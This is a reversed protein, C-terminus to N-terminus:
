RRIDLPCLFPKQAQGNFLPLERMPRICGVGIEPRVAFLFTQKAWDDYQPSEASFDGIHVDGLSHVFRTGGLSIAVHGVDQKKGFFLLDGVEYSYDKNVPLRTPMAAMEDADRPGVLGNILWAVKILGSCDMAYPSTGAWRYSRGLLRLASRAINARLDKQNGNQFLHAANKIDSNAVWGSKGNPLVVSTRNSERKLVGLVAGAPLSTVISKADPSRVEAESATVMVQPKQFHRKFDERNMARVQLRHIWGHYGEPTQVRWWGNKELLYVPTGMLAESIIESSFSAQRHIAAVPTCILGAVVEGLTSSDPLRRVKVEPLSKKKLAAIVSDETTSVLIQGNPDESVDIIVTKRDGVSHMLDFKLQQPTQAAYVGGQTLFMCALCLGVKSFEKLTVPKVEFIHDVARANEM